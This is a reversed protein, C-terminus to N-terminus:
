SSLWLASELSIRITIPQGPEHLEDGCRFPADVIIQADGIRVAYRMVSGLFERHATTGLVCTGGGATSGISADQPRFVLKPNAPVTATPPIPFRIGSALDFARSAGDVVVRGDLVNATGLFNAVFLNKPRQYLEMPAGVQQIVGDNMVAIRDCITNAEEQDHTVFVTTLGLRRQLDRLERRVQVRLKADLNSLPEDLLLVKPQVVITRALAVRQQQGGSLQSPRRDALHGLGVLDLVKAVRAHIEPKPIKREELGFAVNRRVTMHPWLAYSQFVMGVDRKWPPLRTIDKTGIFVSGTDAQAFGAILRLLTTKGAGSPGLFAFFEGPKIDVNVNKLVPTPGYALNVDAVRVGVAMLGLSSSAATQSM